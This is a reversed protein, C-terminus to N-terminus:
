PRGILDDVHAGNLDSWELLAHALREISSWHSNVMIETDFSLRDFLEGYLEPRLDEPLLEMMTTVVEAIPGALTVITDKEIASLRTADNAFFALYMAYDSTCSGAFDIDPTITVFEVEIGLVRGIVAHGAEHHAIAESM